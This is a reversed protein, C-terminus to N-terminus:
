YRENKGKEQEQEQKVFITIDFVEKEKLDNYESYVSIDLAGKIRNSLYESIATKLDDKNLEIYM